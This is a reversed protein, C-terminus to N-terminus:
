NQPAFVGAARLAGAETICFATVEGLVRKLAANAAVVGGYADDSGATETTEFTRTALIRKDRVDLLQVRLALDVRSPLTAFNQQLMILESALRLDPPAVVPPQVIARFAGTQELARALLPSVMRAPADAWRNNAYYDVEHPRKVYAMQPTDLGPWARTAGVELVLDRKETAMVTAPRADLVHLNPPAVSAPQLGTCGAFLVSLALMGLARAM